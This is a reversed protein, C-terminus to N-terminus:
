LVIRRLFPIKSIIYTIGLSTILILIGTVPIAIYTNCMLANINFSNLIDKLIMHILYVGFVLRGMKSVIKKSAENFKIKDCFEKVIIFVSTSYLAINIYLNDFFATTPKAVERAENLNLVITSIISIIGLIVLITKNKNSLKYKDLYYGLVLYGVYGTIMAPHLHKYYNKIWNFCEFEQLFPLVSQIIFFLILFYEIDKKDANKIFIRIIPLVLYLGMIMILFWLHARPLGQKLSLFSQQINFDAKIISYVFTWVIFAILLRPIYKKFLDKYAVEKKSLFLVGSCMVFIDVGCRGIANWFNMAEWRNSSIPTKYWYDASVHIFIVGIIAIIKILDIYVLRKNKESCSM